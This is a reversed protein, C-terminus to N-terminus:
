SGCQRLIAAEISAKRWNVLESAAARVKTSVRMNGLPKIGIIPKGYDLSAIRIEKDIWKSYSAYVGAAILVCSALRVQEKIAEYLERDTGNTHIPSYRPVSYNRYPFTPAQDLLGVLRDYHSSYAWSHSIFLNYTRPM